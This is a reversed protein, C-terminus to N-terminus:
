FDLQHQLRLILADGDGDEPSFATVSAMLKNRHGDLYYNCGADGYVGAAGGESSYVDAAGDDDLDVWSLRLAPELVTGDAQPLAYGVQVDAIVQTADAPVIQADDDALRVACGAAASWADAHMMYDMVVTEHEDTVVDAGLSLQQGFGMAGLYSERRKTELSGLGCAVRVYMAYSNADAAVAEDKLGTAVIWNDGNYMYDVGVGTSTAFQALLRKAPFLTTASSDFQPVATHWYEGFRVHHKGGGVAAWTKTVTAYLMGLEGDSGSGADYGIRDAQMTLVFAWGDARKGKVYLRARRLYGNALAPDDDGDWIDHDSGDGKSADAVDIRSQIRPELSLAWDAAAIEFAPVAAVVSLLCGLRILM